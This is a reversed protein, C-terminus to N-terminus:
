EVSERSLSQREPHAACPRVAECARKLPPCEVLRGNIFLVLTTKKASYDASSVWGELSLAAEADPWPSSARESTTADAEGAEGATPVVRGGKMEVQAMGFRMM